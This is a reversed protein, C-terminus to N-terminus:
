IKCSIQMTPLPSLLPPIIPVRVSSQKTQLPNRESRVAGVELRRGNNRETDSLLAEGIIAGHLPICHKTRYGRLVRLAVTVIDFM